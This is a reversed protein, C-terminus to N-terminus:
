AQAEKIEEKSALSTKYSILLELDKVISNKLVNLLKREVEDEDNNSLLALKYNVWSLDSLLKKVQGDIIRDLSESFSNGM